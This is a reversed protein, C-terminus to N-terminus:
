SGSTQQGSSGAAALIANIIIIIKIIMEREIDWIRKTEM